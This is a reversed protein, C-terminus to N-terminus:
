NTYDSFDSSKPIYHRVLGTLNENQVEKGLNYPNEFSIVINM